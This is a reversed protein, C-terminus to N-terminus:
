EQKDRLIAPILDFKQMNNMLFENWWSYPITAGASNFHGGADPNFRKAVKGLDIKNNGRFSLHAMFHGETKSYKMYWIISYDVQDELLQNGVDSQYNCSNVISVREHTSECLEINHYFLDYITAKQKIQDIQTQQSELIIKGEKVSNYFEQNFDNYGWLDFYKQITDVSIPQNYIIATIENCYELKNTWLDRDQVYQIIHPPKYPFFRKWALGAGSMNMDFNCYINEFKELQKINDLNSKHHDHIEIYINLDDLKKLFEIGPVTDFILIRAKSEASDYLLPMSYQNLESLDFDDFSEQNPRCSILKVEKGVIDAYRKACWAASIGDTCGPGHYFVFLKKVNDLNM